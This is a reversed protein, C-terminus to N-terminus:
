ANARIAPLSPSENHSGRLGHVHIVAARIRLGLNGSGSEARGRYIVPLFKEVLPVLNGFVSTKFELIKMGSLKGRAPTVM